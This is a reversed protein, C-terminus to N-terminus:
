LSAPVHKGKGSPLSRLVIGVGRDVFWPAPDAALRAAMLEPDRNNNAPYFMDGNNRRSDEDVWDPRNLGDRQILYDAIGAFFGDWGSHGTLPPSADIAQQRMSIDLTDYDNRAFQNLTWRVVWLPDAGIQDDKIFEAVLGQLTSASGTTSPEHSLNAAEETETIWKLQNTQM